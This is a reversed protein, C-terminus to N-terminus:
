KISRIRSPRPTRPVAEPLRGTRNPETRCFGFGVMRNESDSLTVSGFRALNIYTHATRFRVSEHSSGSRRFFLPGFRSLAQKASSELLFSIIGTLTTRRNPGTRFITSKRAGSRNSRNSGHINSNVVSRLPVSLLILGRHPESGVKFPEIKERCRPCRSCVVTCVDLSAGAQPVIRRRSREVTRTYIAM